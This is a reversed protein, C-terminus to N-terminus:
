KGSNQGAKSKILDVPLDISIEKGDKKCIAHKGDKFRGVNDYIFPIIENGYIDIYGWKSGKKVRLLNGTLEDKADDYILPIKVNGNYDIWGMKGDKRVIYMNYDTPAIIDYIIPIVIKGTSDIIGYLGPGEIKSSDASIKMGKNVIAFGKNFDRAFDYILPITKENNKNIFGFKGGLVIEGNKKGGSNVLALGNIFKGKYTYDQCYVTATYIMLILLQLLKIKKM